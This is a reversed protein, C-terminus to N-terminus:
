TKEPEPSENLPEYRYSWWVVAALLLAGVYVDFLPDWQERGSYGQRKRWESFAGVFWQSSMAGIVGAGNMLGFLAGVHRGCQPIAVSWWNPLTVHMACFSVGWLGALAFADDCRIGAFLSAAAITYCVAGLYRRARVPDASWKPIQDALWGGFLMGAASGALVISALTGSRLNDMGRAASLYKPFWSYFFYTYFSGLIMIASLALIGRNTLISEWPLPGPDAAPPPMGNRIQKLELANVDPHIAPDDRFWWWFGVAWVVGLMGFLAFSWRWGLTEILGAAATPAAIGGFQAAALMVGQVRGREHVPFWRAIVRAANPFAGAEGAGFLFRVAMLGLLGTCVGTLATFASWWLVIRTLLFRSGRRDGLRGTPIEFLGYALSFAMLVYSIESDSLDLEKQIPVVAQSMCIRDLYLVASLGCLWLVLVFRARTPKDFDPSIMDFRM